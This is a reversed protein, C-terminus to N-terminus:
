SGHPREAVVHWHFNQAKGRQEVDVLARINFDDLLNVAGRANSFSHPHAKDPGAKDDIWFDKSVERGVAFDEHHKSLLTIQITGGPKLVRYIEAFAQRMETDDGHYIVNWSVIFDFTDAPFPLDTMVANHTTVDLGHLMAESSVHALGTASTDVADLKFGIDALALTHRGVGCGIDLAREAGSDRLREGLEVVEREPIIWDARGAASSWREEWSYDTTGSNDTM